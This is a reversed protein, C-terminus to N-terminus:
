QVDLWKLAIREWYLKYSTMKFCAKESLIDKVMIVVLCKYFFPKEVIFTPQIPLQGGFCPGLVTLLVISLVRLGATAM